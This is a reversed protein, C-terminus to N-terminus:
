SSSSAAAAQTYNQPPHHDGLITLAIIRKKKPHIKSYSWEKYRLSSGCIYSDSYGISKEMRVFLGLKLIM